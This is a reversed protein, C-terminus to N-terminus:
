TDTDVLPWRAPLISSFLFNKDEESHWGERPKLVEWSQAKKFALSWVGSCLTSGRPHGEHPKTGGLEEFARGM